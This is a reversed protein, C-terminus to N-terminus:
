LDLNINSVNFKLYVVDVHMIFLLLFFHIQFAVGIFCCLVGFVLIFLYM